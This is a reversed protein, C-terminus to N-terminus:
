EDGSRWTVDRVTPLRALASKIIPEIDPYTHTERPGFLSALFGSAREVWGMCELPESAIDFRSCFRYCVGNHRFTVSWGEDETAVRSDAEVSMGKLANVLSSPLEEVSELDSVFSIYRAFAM